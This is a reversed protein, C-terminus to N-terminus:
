NSVLSPDTVALPAALDFQKFVLVRRCLLMNASGQKGRPVRKNLLYRM